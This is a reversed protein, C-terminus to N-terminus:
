FKIALRAKDVVNRVIECKVLRTKEKYSIVIKDNDVSELTGEIINLGKYPHTLHINIYKGVYKELKAVDIPKEAGFTTVDLVYNSEILDAEDLIPSIVDNVKVIQDLDIAEDDKDVMVRLYNTGFERVFKVDVETYGLAKIPKEILNKVTSELTM